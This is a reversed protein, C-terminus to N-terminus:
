SITNKGRLPLVLRRQERSIMHFSIGPPQTTELLHLAEAGPRLPTSSVSVASNGAKDQGNGSAGSGSADSTRQASSLYMDQAQKTLTDLQSRLKGLGLSIELSRIEEESPM